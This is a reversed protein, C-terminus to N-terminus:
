HCVEKKNEKKVERSKCRMNRVNDVANESHINIVDRVIVCKTREKVICKNCTYCNLIMYEKATGFLHKGTGIDVGCGKKCM